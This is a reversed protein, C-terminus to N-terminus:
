LQWTFYFKQACIFANIPLEQYISINEHLTDFSFLDTQDFVFIQQKISFNHQVIVVIKIFTTLTETTRYTCWLQREREREIATPPIVM